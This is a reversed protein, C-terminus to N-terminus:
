KLWWNQSIQLYMEAEMMEKMEVEDGSKWGEKM